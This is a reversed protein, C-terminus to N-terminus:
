RTIGLINVLKSELLRVCKLLPELIVMSFLGDQVCDLGGIVPWLM